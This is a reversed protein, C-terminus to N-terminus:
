KREGQNEPLVTIEWCNERVPKTEFQVPLFCRIIEMNTKTHGSPETATFCGGSGLSLPLLLQDQLHEEARAGSALYRRVQRVCGAAVKELPLGTKGFETFVLQGDELDLVASVANGPGPSSVMQAFCRERPIELAEAVAAAEARGIREPIGSSWAYVAMGTIERKTWEARPVDRRPTGRIESRVNGGGAPYFGYRDLALSFGFGLSELMPRFSWDLFQFPPAMGNHTGGEICVSSDGPASLLPFLVTQLVLSTSGASGVSWSYTGPRIPGPIFTLEGSGLEAGRLEAGCIDRAALVCALHQRLLGPRNRGARINVIRFSRGTIASLALATRLIQGGGEGRSGDIIIDPATEYKDKM